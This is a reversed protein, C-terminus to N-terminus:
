PMLNNIQRHIYELRISAQREMEGWRDAIEDEGLDIASDMLKQYTHLKLILRDAEAMMLNIKPHKYDFHTLM